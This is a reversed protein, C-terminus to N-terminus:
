SEKGGFYKHYAVLAEMYRACKMMEERSNGIGKLYNLLKSTEVFGRLSDDRGVDYVIRVRLNTLKMGSEPALEAETRRRETNYIDSCISMWSRLKSTSITRAQSRMVTEAEDVYNNPLKQAVIMQPPAPRQQRADYPRGGYPRGGYPRGGNQTWRGDNM